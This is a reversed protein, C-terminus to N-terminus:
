AFVSEVSWYCLPRCDTQLGDKYLNEATFWHLQCLQKSGVLLPKVADGDTWWWFCHFNCKMVNTWLKQQFYYLKHFNQLNQNRNGSQSGTLSACSTWWITCLDLVHQTNSTIVQSFIINLLLFLMKKKLRTFIFHKKWTKLFNLLHLQQSINNEKLFIFVINSADLSESNYNINFYFFM